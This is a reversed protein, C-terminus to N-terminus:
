EALELRKRPNPASTRKRLTQTLTRWPIKRGHSLHSMKGIAGEIQACVPKTKRQAPHTKLVGGIASLNQVESAAPSRQSRQPNLTSATFDPRWMRKLTSASSHDRRQLASVGDPAGLVGNSHAWRLAAVARLRYDNTRERCMRQRYPGSQRPTADAEPPGLFQGFPEFRARLEPFPRRPPLTTSPSPEPDQAVVFRSAGCDRARFDLQSGVCQSLTFAFRTM